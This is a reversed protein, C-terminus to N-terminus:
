SAEKGLREVLLRNASEIFKGFINDDDCWTWTYQRDVNFVTLTLGLCLEIKTEAGITTMSFAIRQTIRSDSFINEILGHTPAYYGETVPAYLGELALARILCRAGDYDIM